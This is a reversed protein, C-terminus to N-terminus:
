SGIAAAYSLVLWLLAFSVCKSPSVPLQRTMEPQFFYHCATSPSINDTNFHHLQISIDHHAGTMIESPIDLNRSSLAIKDSGHLFVCHFLNFHDTGYSLLLCCPNSTILQKTILASYHFWAKIYTLHCNYMHLVMFVLNSSIYMLHQNNNM